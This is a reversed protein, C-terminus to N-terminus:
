MLPQGGKQIVTAHQRMIDLFGHTRLFYLIRATSKGPQYNQEPTYYPLVVAAIALSKERLQALLILFSLLPGPDVWVTNSFDFTINKTNGSKDEFLRQVRGFEKVWVLSTFQKPFYITTKNQGLISEVKISDAM